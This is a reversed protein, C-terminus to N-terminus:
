CLYRCPTIRSSVYLTKCSKLVLGLLPACVMSDYSISLNAMSVGNEEMSLGDFAFTEIRPNILKFENMMTGNGFIQMITISKMVSHGDFRKGSEYPLSSSAKINDTGWNGNAQGSVKAM